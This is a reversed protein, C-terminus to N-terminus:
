YSLLGGGAVLVEGTIYDSEPLCFLYVAGAAEEPTGARGMPIIDRLDAAADASFGVAYDRGAVAIHAPSDGSWVQTLRTDIFGFGVCNVNVRYRAWEKALTRTIGVQAAKAASYAIQTAGGYLGAVSSVNVVKRYHAKGAAEEDRVVRRIFDGAARLIRFPATAHCDLMAQWQADSTKQISSNWVYGANNVIIDVGGFAELMYAIVRTGYDAHTVDGVFAAAQGGAARIAEVTAHAPDADLDGVVVAAGAAALKRALAAGAGRGAGTVLAVRNNLPNHQNM